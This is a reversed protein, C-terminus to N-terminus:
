FVLRCRKASEVTQCSSKEVDTDEPCFGMMQCVIPNKFTQWEPHEEYHKLYMKNIAKKTSGCCHQYPVIICDTDNDCIDIDEYSSLSVKSSNYNYQYLYYGGFVLAIVAIIVIVKKM